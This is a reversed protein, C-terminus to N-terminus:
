RRGPRLLSKLRERRRRSVPVSSGDRLIAVAEGRPSTRLERVQDLRVIAGRHVRLFHAPNLDRELSRLSERVLYRKAGAHVCAYYDRAEIWGIEAVDLLLRGTATPVLIEERAAAASAMRLRDRVRALTAEFRAEALPKVLYDVANAEFARVAFEDFATVFVVAPMRDLERTRIVGFGDLGPMQVDLFVLDPALTELARAAERGDRCEGVVVMDRHRALLQRIGRRALPEDDVILVRIEAVV